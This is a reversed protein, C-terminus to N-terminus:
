GSCQAIAKELWRRFAAIATARWNDLRATFNYSGLFVDPFSAVPALRGSALDESGLLANALAIGQGQRAAALTLHGQWFKPGPIEGVDSVGHQDFWRRWQDNSAEHLLTRDLLDAPTSVPPTNAIFAPSALALVAPRAVEISRLTAPPAERHADIIYHLYADAENAAFAPPPDSPQLELEVAPHDRMFEGVRGSLWESALGPAVWLRLRVDDERRMLDQTALAIEALAASIRTHYARGQETLNGHGAGSRDILSMGTWQELAHLHRSVAAHDISLAAAARRIGGCSGVAEFARLAAFPPTAARQARIIRARDTPDPSSMAHDKARRRM